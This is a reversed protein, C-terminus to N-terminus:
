APTPPTPPISSPVHGGSAARSGSPPEIPDPSLEEVQKRDYAAHELRAHIEDRSLGDVIRLRLYRRLAARAVDELGLCEEHRVKFPTDDHERPKRAGHVIKSRVKYRDRLGRAVELGREPPAVLIACRQSIRQILEGGDGGFMAELAIWIELVWADYPRTHAFLFHEIAVRCDDPLHEWRSALPRWLVSSIRRVATWREPTATWSEWEQIAEPTVPDSAHTGLRSTEEDPLFLMEKVVRVFGGGALRLMLLGRNALASYSGGGSIGPDSSSIRGQTSSQISWVRALVSPDDSDRSCPWWPAPLGPALSHAARVSVSGDELQTTERAVRGRMHQWRAIVNESHRALVLADDGHVVPPADGAIGLVFAVSRTHGANGAAAPQATAETLRAGYRGPM